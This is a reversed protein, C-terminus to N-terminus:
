LIRVTTGTSNSYVYVHVDNYLIERRKEERGQKWPSIGHKWAQKVVVKRTSQRYIYLGDKRSTCFLLILIGSAAWQHQSPNVRQGQFQVNLYYCMM